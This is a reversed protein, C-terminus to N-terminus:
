FGIKTKLSNIPCKPDNIGLCGEHEHEQCIECVTHGSCDIWWNRMVRLVSGELETILIM